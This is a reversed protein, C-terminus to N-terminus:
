QMLFFFCHTCILHLSVLEVPMSSLIKQFDERARAKEGFNHQGKHMLKSLYFLKCLDPMETFKALLCLMEENEKELAIEMPSVTKGECVAAPDM